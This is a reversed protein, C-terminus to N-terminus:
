YKSSHQFVIKTELAKVRPFFIFLYIFVYTNGICLSLCTMSTVWHSRIILISNPVKFYFRFEKDGGGGGEGSSFFGASSM